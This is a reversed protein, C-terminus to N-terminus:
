ARGSGFGGDREVLGEDMSQLLLERPGDLGPNKAGVHFHVEDIVAGDGEDEIGHEPFSCPGHIM